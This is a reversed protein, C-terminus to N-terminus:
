VLGTTDPHLREGARFAAALVLMTLGVWIPWFDVQLHSRAQSFGIITNIGDWTIVDKFEASNWQLVQRFASSENVGSGLQWGLGGVIVTTGLLRIGRTVAAPLPDNRLLTSCLTTVVIAIMLVTAGQLPASGALWARAVVDLRSVQVPAATFGGGTVHATPGGTVSAGSPLAPWFQYVPLSLTVSPVRFDSIVTYGTFPLGGFIAVFAIVRAVRTTGEPAQDKGM